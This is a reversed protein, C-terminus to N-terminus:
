SLLARLQANIAERQRLLPRALLFALLSRANKRRNCDGCAATLNSWHNAGGRGVPEIHDLVEGLAGCYACPDGAMASRYESVLEVADPSYMRIPQTRARHTAVRCAESCWRRPNRPPRSGAPAPLEGGCGACPKSVSPTLYSAGQKCASSATM